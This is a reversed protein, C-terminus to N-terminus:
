AVVPSAGDSARVRWGETLAGPETLTVVCGGFGGGVLRAGFVGPTTTLREVLADVVPTSAEFDDRISAHSAAMISGAEELDASALAGAFALVRANESVIHRARARVARDRIAGVDGLGADRLPGIDGEAAAVERRRDGYASGALERTQGSHIVVIEASSPVPVLDYSVARFDVLLAHGEVGCISTLQDMLGCPVGSAAHEARQCALALEIPGLSSGVAIAVAVELAASSSLGAGIPLTTSIRGDFGCTPGVEAVVAAVYRGWNPLVPDLQDRASGVEVEVSGDLEESTLRLRGELPRGEITTGLDIAMPLALGGAYDTHDGMLNVRGPAWVRTTAGTGTTGV